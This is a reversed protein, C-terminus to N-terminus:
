TLSQMVERWRRAARAQADFYGDNDIGTAASMEEYLAALYHVLSAVDDCPVAHVHATLYRLGDIRLCLQNGRPLFREIKLMRGYRKSLRANLAGLDRTSTEEFLDLARGLWLRTQRNSEICSAVCAANRAAIKQLAEGITVRGFAIDEWSVGDSRRFRLGHVAWLLGKLVYHGETNRLTTLKWDPDVSSDYLRMNALVEMREYSRVVATRMRQHLEALTSPTREINHEPHFEYQWPRGLELVYDRMREVSRDSEVGFIRHYETGLVIEMRRDWDTAQRVLEKYHPDKTIWQFGHRWETRPYTGSPRPVPFDGALHAEVAALVSERENPLLRAGKIVAAWPAGSLYKKVIKRVLLVQRDSLACLPAAYVSPVRGPRDPNVCREM